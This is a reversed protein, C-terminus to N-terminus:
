EEDEEEEEEDGGLGQSAFLTELAEDLLDQAADLECWTLAGIDQRHKMTDLADGLACLQKYLTLGASM